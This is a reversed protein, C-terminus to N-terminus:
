ENWLGGANCGYVAILYIGDGDTLESDLVSVTAPTGASLNFGSEVLLGVGRAPTTGNKVARAEWQTLDQDATFTCICESYGTEDSIRAKNPTGITIVPATWAAGIVVAITISSSITTTYTYHDIGAGTSYTVDFSIGTVLGGYYGVYHRLTLNDLDSRTITRNPTVTIISDSTSPFDVADSAEDSGLYLVCQSVYTSSITNSERHGYCRVEISEITVNSPIDSFDFSYAAYGTSSSSAYMNEDSGNPDEASCGVAYEAYSGGSQIGHTAVSGAVITVTAASGHAVLDSSIDIGNKTATVTDSKNSPTITLTYSGDKEVETEGNPDITGNGSLTSTVVYTVSDYTYTVTVTAGNVLGGYYGITFRLTMDNIDSRSWSGTTLTVTQASTTTFKSVSGKATEGSYLQLNATSRSSNECHGKVTCAVSEIEAASPIEEFEFSYSIYATSSSGGNSYDNGSVASTDSGKGIANRYATGKISGSTTYATPYSTATKRVTAM